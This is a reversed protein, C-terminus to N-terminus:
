SYTEKDAPKIELKFDTSNRIERRGGLTADSDRSRAESTKSVTESTNLSNTQHDLQLNSQTQNQQISSTALRNFPSDIRDYLFFDYLFGGFIGGSCTALWPSWLWYFNGDTWVSSSYGFIWAMLRPGSDRAPNIASGTQAGFSAGIGIIVWMFIMPNTGNPTPVNQRDGLAFVMLLLITADLFEQFFCNAHSMYPQPTTFFLGGTATPGNITRLGKAGEYIDLAHAYITQTILSGTFAGFVQAIVYPIVGKWPFRQFVALSITVCPNLHGGSIGGSLYVGLMVATGWGISISLFDGKLSSSVKQDADLVVQCNVGTGIMLMMATGLYEAIFPRLWRKWKLYVSLKPEFVQSGNLLGNNQLM